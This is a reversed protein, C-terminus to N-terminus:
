WICRRGTARSCTSWACCGAHARDIGYTGSCALGFSSSVCEVSYLAAEWAWSVIHAESSLTTARQSCRCFRFRGCHQQPCARRWRRACKGGPQAKRVATKLCRSSLNAIIACEAWRWGRGRSRWSSAPARLGRRTCVAMHASALCRLDRTSTWQLRFSAIM